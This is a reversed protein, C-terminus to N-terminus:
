VMTVITCLVAHICVEQKVPSLPLKNYDALLGEKEQFTFQTRLWLQDTAAAPTAHLRPM